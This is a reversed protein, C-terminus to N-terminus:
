IVVIKKVVLLNDQTLIHCIYVGSKITDPLIIPQNNNIFISFVVQGLVNNLTFSYNQTIGKIFINGCSIVPNPVIQITPKTLQKVGTPMDCNKLNFPVYNYDIFGSDKFCALHYGGEFDGDEVISALLGGTYGIEEILSLSDPYSGGNYSNLKLRRRFTGDGFQVSDIGTVYISDIYQYANHHPLTDGVKLNFDYLLQDSAFDIDRIFVEKNLTDNRILHRQFYPVAITNDWNIGGELLESYKLGEFMTDKGMQYVLYDCPNFVCGQVDVEAVHWEAGSDPFPHYVSAQGNSSVWFMLWVPLLLVIYKKM